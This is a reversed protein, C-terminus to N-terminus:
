RTGKNKLKNFLIIANIHKCYLGSDKCRNTYDPCTCSYSDLHRVKYKTSGGSSPILYTTENVKEPVRTNLVAIAREKRKASEGMLDTQAVM